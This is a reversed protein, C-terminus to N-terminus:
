RSRRDLSGAPGGTRRFFHEFGAPTSLTLVRGTASDVAIGHPVDRPGWVFGGEEVTLTRDGVVVTFRGALVFWAEDEHRHVHM